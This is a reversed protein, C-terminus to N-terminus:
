SVKLRFFAMYSTPDSGYFPTLEGPLGYKSVLAGIGFKLHQALPIDYIGGLSVKSVAFNAHGLEPDIGPVNHLLEHSDVREARMFVTYQKQFIVASELLFGDLTDGPRQIKRGWAATTSWVNNVGFPQTYIVSASIRDEDIESELQEPSRLRAWSVQASIERIPNWSVRASFSDLRPTEIDFRHQDPERGRFTSAEIKWNDVVLGATVVGFTIHTSDLWHHTIPAEPIDLGSTRHMFAPPGFAPEGPLGAYVFVSSRASINYSYTTALEMFLDHPHQRDVLPTVGNATEGTALLLPYGSAGMFPDPSLMARFGLTGDGIQRQAMAMVMGSAFTKEGGRPGGQRDYVGNILAHWMVDWDAVKSHIGEHPTTDPVWSTGSGERTMAYPGLFGKMTGHSQHDGGSAPSHQHGRAASRSHQHGATKNNPSTSGSRNHSAPHKQAAPKNAKKPTPKAAKASPTAPAAHEAHGGHHEHGAQALTMEQASALPAAAFVAIAFAFAPLGRASKLRRTM